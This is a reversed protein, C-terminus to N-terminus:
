IYIYVHDAMVALARGDCEGGCGGRVSGSAKVNSGDRAVECGGTRRPSMASIETQLM